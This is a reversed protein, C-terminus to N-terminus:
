INNKARNPIEVLATMVSLNDRVKAVFALNLDKTVIGQKNKNEIRIEEKQYYSEVFKRSIQLTYPEESPSEFMSQLLIKEFISRVGRAGIKFQMAIEAIARVADNEFILTNGDMAFLQQYESMISDTTDQMIKVLDEVTLESLQAIIAFRGTLEPIIGFVRLDESSITNQSNCVENGTAFGIPMTNIRNKIIEDIGVFAGGAIFLINATNIKILDQQYPQKRGGRPSIHITTGEIIKLLGQQVGEGSVDRAFSSGANRKAIKDIEDIYIIGTEAKSIDGGAELLLKSLMSEVDEGVYGTETMSKADVIVYPVDLFNALVEALLTKGSGTPGTLLVNSKKCKVSNTNTTSIKKYHNYVAVSLVKKAENQGVVYKDLYAKIEIPRPLKTNVSEIEVKKDDLLNVCAHICDRCIYATTSVIIDSCQDGDKNCFSCQINKRQNTM